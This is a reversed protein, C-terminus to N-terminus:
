GILITKIDVLYPLINQTGISHKACVDAAAAAAALSVTVPPWSQM